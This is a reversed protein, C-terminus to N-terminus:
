GNYLVKELIIKTKKYDTLIREWGPRGELSISECGQAKAWQEINGILPTYKERGIGACLWILCTTTQPYETICTIAIGDVDNGDGAVWLQAKGSRLDNLVDEISHTNEYKLARQILTLCQFDLQKIEAQSVLRLDPAPNHRSLYTDRGNKIKLQANLM